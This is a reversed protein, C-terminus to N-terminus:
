STMTRAGLREAGDAGAGDRSEGDVAPPTHPLQQGMGPKESCLLMGAQCGGLGAYAACPRMDLGLCKGAVGQKGRGRGAGHRADLSARVGKLGEDM